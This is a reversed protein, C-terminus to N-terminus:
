ETRDGPPGDGRGPSGYRLPRAADGGEDILEVLVRGDCGRPIRLGLLHLATPTVDLLSARTQPPAVRIGAGSVALRGGVPGLTVDIWAGQERIKEATARDVPRASEHIRLFLPPDDDSPPTRLVPIGAAEAFHPLTARTEFPARSGDAAPFARLLVAAPRDPIWSLGGGGPLTRPIGTGARTRAPARGSWLAAVRGPVASDLPRLRVHSAPVEPFGPQTHVTVTVPMSGAVPPDEARDPGGSGKGGPMAARPPLLALLLGLVAVGLAPVIAGDVRSHRPLIWRRLARAFLFLVALALGFGIPLFLQGAAAIALAGAATAM